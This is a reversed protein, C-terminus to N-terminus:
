RNENTCSAPKYAKNEGKKWDEVEEGEQEVGVHDGCEKDHKAVPERAFILMYQSRDYTRTKRFHRITIEGYRVQHRERKTQPM